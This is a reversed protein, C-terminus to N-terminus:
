PLDYFGFMAKIIAWVRQWDINKRRLRDYMTDIILLIMPMLALFQIVLFTQLDVM